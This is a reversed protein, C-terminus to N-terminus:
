QAIRWASYRWRHHWGLRDQFRPHRTKSEACADEVEQIHAMRQRQKQGGEFDIPLVHRGVSKRQLLAARSHDANRGLRSRKRWASSRQRAQHAGRVHRSQQPDQLSRLPVLLRPDVHPPRSAQESHLVHGESGSMDAVRPVEHRGGSLRSREPEAHARCGRRLSM